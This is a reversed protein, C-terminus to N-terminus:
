LTLTAIALLLVITFNLAHGLYCLPCMVNLRQVLAWILYVSFLGVLVAVLLFLTAYPLTGTAAITAALGLLILYWVAGYAANPLGFVRAYPTETITACTEEEMRCVRPIWRAEPHIWDYTVAVFYMANAFGTVAAIALLTTLLLTLIM